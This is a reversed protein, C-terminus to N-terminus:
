TTLLIGAWDEDSRMSTLKRRCSGRVTAFLSELLQEVVDPRRAQRVHFITKHLVDLFVLRFCWGLYNLQNSGCLRTFVFPVVADAAKRNLKQVVAWFRERLALDALAHTNKLAHLNHM